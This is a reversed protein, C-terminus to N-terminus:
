HIVSDCHQVATDGCYFLIMEKMQEIRQSVKEMNTMQKTRGEKCHGVTSSQVTEVAM